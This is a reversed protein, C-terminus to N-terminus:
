SAEMDTKGSLNNVYLFPFSGNMDQIRYSNPEGEETFYVRKDNSM